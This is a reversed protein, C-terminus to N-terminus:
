HFWCVYIVETSPKFYRFIEFVTDDFLVAVTLKGQAARALQSYERCLAVSSVRM